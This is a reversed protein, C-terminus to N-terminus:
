TKPGICQHVPAGYHSLNFYIPNLFVLCAHHTQLWQIERHMDWLYGEFIHYHASKRYCHIFVYRQTNLNYQLPYYM